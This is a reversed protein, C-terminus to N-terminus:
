SVGLKCCIEFRWFRFWALSMFGTLFELCFIGFVTVLVKLNDFWRLVVDEFWFQLLALGDSGDFSEFSGFRYYFNNIM